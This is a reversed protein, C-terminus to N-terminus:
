LNTIVTHKHLQRLKEGKREKRETGLKSEEIDVSGTQQLLKFTERNSKTDQWYFYQHAPKASVFWNKRERERVRKRKASCLSVDSLTTEAVFLSLLVSFLSSHRLPSCYRRILRFRPVSTTSFYPFWLTNFTFLKM